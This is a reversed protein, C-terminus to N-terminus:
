RRTCASTRPCTDSRAACADHDKLVDVAGGNAQLTATGRDADQLTALTRMLTSKGRRQARAPRVHRPSHRPHRGETSPATPTPRPCTASRSCLTERPRTEQQRCDLSRGARFGPSAVFHRLRAVPHLFGPGGTGTIGHGRQDPRGARSTARPTPRSSRSWARWKRRRAPVSCRCWARSAAADFLGASMATEIIGPSVANVTVGRSGLELALSRTAAHSRAKAAAYNAQGRNGLQAAVSTISVIRGWRTRAMPMALPRTVNFFGNLSVDIVRSWQEARM